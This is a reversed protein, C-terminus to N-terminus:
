TKPEDDEDPQKQEQQQAVPQEPEQSPAPSTNAAGIKVLCKAALETLLDALASNGDELAKARLALLRGLELHLADVPDPM